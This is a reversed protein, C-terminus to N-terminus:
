WSADALPPSVSTNRTLFYSAHDTNLVYVKGDKVNATPLLAAMEGNVDPFNSRVKKSPKSLRAEAEKESITKTIVEVTAPLDNSNSVVFDFRTSESDAVKVKNMVFTRNNFVIHLQYKGAPIHARYYGYEDANVMFTQSGNEIMVEAYAIPVMTEKEVVQGTIEGSFHSGLAFLRSFVFISFLLLPRLTVM